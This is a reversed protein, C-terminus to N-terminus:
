KISILIEELKKVCKDIRCNDYAYIKGNNCLKEYKNKNIILENISSSMCKINDITIGGPLQNANGVNTSIFPVGEAMAEILSVSFEEYTSGVLYIYANKILKPIFMRDVNDLIYVKCGKNCNKSYKLLKNYYDTKKAGIFVMAYENRKEIKLYEKLIGIQNKINRYNAVSIFYKKNELFDFDSNEYIENEFFMDDAANGLFYKEGNFNKNFYSLGSDNEHLSITADIDNIYKKLFVPYYYYKYYLYNYTNGITKKINEKWKFLKLTRGYCGHAHLIKKGKIKTLYPLLINFTITECCEFIIYDSDLDMIYKKYDEIEGFYKKLKNKWINFRVINVNNLKENGKGLTIVSVDNEKALGEALYKTVNQVGGKTPYYADAIFTIKM